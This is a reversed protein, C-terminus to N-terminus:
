GWFARSLDWERRRERGRGGDDACFGIVYEGTRRAAM